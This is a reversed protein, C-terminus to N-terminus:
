SAAVAVAANGEHPGVEKMEQLRTQNSSKDFVGILHLVALEAGELVRGQALVYSRPLALTGTTARRLAIRFIATTQSPKREVNAIHGEKEQELLFLLLLLPHQRHVLFIRVIRELAM